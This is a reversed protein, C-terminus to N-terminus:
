KAVAWYWRQTSTSRPICMGAKGEPLRIDTLIISLRSFWSLKLSVSVFLDKNTASNFTLSSRISACANGVKVRRSRCTFCGSRTRRHKVTKSGPAEGMPKKQSEPNLADYVAMHKSGPFVGPSQTDTALSGRISLPISQCPLEPPIHQPGQVRYLGVGSM